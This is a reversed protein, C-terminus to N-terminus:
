YGITAQFNLIWKIIKLPATEIAFNYLGPDSNQLFKIKNMINMYQSLNTILAKNEYNWQNLFIRIIDNNIEWIKKENVTM